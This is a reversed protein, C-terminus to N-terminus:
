TSTCLAKTATVRCQGRAAFRQSCLMAFTPRSQTISLSPVPWLCCCWLRFTCQISDWWSEAAGKIALKHLAQNVIPPGEAPWGASSHKNGAHLSLSV